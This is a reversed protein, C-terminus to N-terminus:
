WFNWVFDLYVWIWVLGFLIIITFILDREVSYILEKVLTQILLSV